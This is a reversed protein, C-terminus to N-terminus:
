FPKIDIDSSPLPKGSLTGAPKKRKQIPVSEQMEKPWNRFSFGHFSFRKNKLGCNMPCKDCSTHFNGGRVDIKRLGLKRQRLKAHKTEALNRLKLSNENLISKIFDTWGSESTMRGVLMSAPFGLVTCFM